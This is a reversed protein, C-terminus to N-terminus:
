GDVFTGPIGSVTCVQFKPTGNTTWTTDGRSWTLLDRATTTGFWTGMTSWKGGTADTVRMQYMKHDNNYIMDGDQIDTLADRAATSMGEAKFRRNANVRVITPANAASVTIQTRNTHGVKYVAGGILTMSDGSQQVIDDTGAPIGGLVAIAGNIVLGSVSSGAESKYIRASTVSGGTRVFFCDRISTGEQAGVANVFWSVPPETNVETEFWCGDILTQASFTGFYVVPSTNATAHSNCDRVSTKTAGNVSLGYGADPSFECHFFRASSVLGALQVAGNTVNNTIRVHIFLNNDCASAAENFDIGWSPWNQIWLHQFLMYGSNKLVFCRGSGSTHTGSIVLGEFRAWNAGTITFLDANASATYAIQSRTPGDGVMAFRLGNITMPGVAPVTAENYTGSPVYVTGGTDASLSNIAAQFTSYGKVSVWAVGDRMWGGEADTFLQTTIGTGSAIYDFRTEPTYFTLLGQSGLTVPNSTTTVAAPDSYLTALASYVVFRDGVAVSINSGISRATIQTDSDVSVVTMQKTADTGLQINDGALLRGVGYVVVTTNTTLVTTATRVTAGQKFVQVTANNAPVQAVDSAGKDKTITTQFRRMLMAGAM